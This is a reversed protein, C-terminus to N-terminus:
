RIQFIKSSEDYIRIARNQLIQLRNLNLETTSGWCLIGYQLHSNFLAHYMDVLTKTNLYYRLKSFIGASRSLKTSLYDLQNSWTINQDLYVGLYKVSDVRKLEVNGMFIRFNVDANRTYNSLLFNVLKKPTPLSDTLYSGSM